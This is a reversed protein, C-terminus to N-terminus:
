VVTAGVGRLLVAPDTDPRTGPNTTTTRRHVRKQRQWDGDDLAAKADHEGDYSEPELHAGYFTHPSCFLNDHSDRM